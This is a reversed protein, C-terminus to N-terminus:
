GSGQRRPGDASATQRRDVLAWTTTGAQEPLLAARVALLEAPPNPRATRTRVAVLRDGQGIQESVSGIRLAWVPRSLATTPGPRPRPDWSHRPRYRAALHDNRRELPSCVILRPPSVGPASKIM